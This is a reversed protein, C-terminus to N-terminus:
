TINVNVITWFAHNSIFSIMLSKLIVQHLWLNYIFDVVAIHLDDVLLSSRAKASNSGSSVGVGEVLGRSSKEKLDALIEVVSNLCGGECCNALQKENEEEEEAPSLIIKM